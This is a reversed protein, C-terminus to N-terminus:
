SVCEESSFALVLALLFGMTKCCREAWTYRCPIVYCFSGLPDKFGTRENDCARHELVGGNVEVHKGVGLFIKHGATLFGFRFFYCAM